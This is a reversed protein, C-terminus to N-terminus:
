PPTGGPAIVGGYGVATAFFPIDCRPSLRFHVSTGFSGYAGLNLSIDLEANFNAVIGNTSCVITGADIWATSAVGATVSFDTDPHSHAWDITDGPALGPDTGDFNHSITLSVPGASVSAAVYSIQYQVKRWGANNFGGLGRWFYVWPPPSFGSGLGLGFSDSYGNINTTKPVWGPWHALTDQTIFGTANLVVALGMLANFGVVQLNPTYGAPLVGPVAYTVGNTLDAWYAEISSMYDTVLPLQLHVKTTVGVTGAPFAVGWQDTATLWPFAYATIISPSGFPITDLYYAPYGHSLYAARSKGTLAGGPPAGWVMEPHSTTM